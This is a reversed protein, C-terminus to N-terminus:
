SPAISICPPTVAGASFPEGQGGGLGLLFCTPQYIALGRHGARGGMQSGPRHSHGCHRAKM